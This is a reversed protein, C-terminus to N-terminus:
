RYSRSQRGRVMDRIFGVATKNGKRTKILATVDSVMFTHMLTRPVWASCNDNRRRTRQYIGKPGYVLKEHDDPSIEGFVSSMVFDRAGQLIGVRWGRNMSCFNIAADVLLGSDKSPRVGLKRIQEFYDSRLEPTFKHFFTDGFHLGPADPLLVRESAEPLYQDITDAHLLAGIAGASFGYMVVKKQDSWRVLDQNVTERMAAEINKWGRHRVPLGAYTTDHDGLHVDGTCYPLWVHGYEAVPSLSKLRSTFGGYSWVRKPPSLTTKSNPGVCSDLDWCAGGGMLTVATRDAKGERFFFHYPDGNGCIAGPVEIKQWKNLNAQPEIKGPGTAPGSWLQTVLAGLAGYGLVEMDKGGSFDM